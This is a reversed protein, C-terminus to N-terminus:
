GKWTAYQKLDVDAVKGGDYQFVKKVRTRHAAVPEFKSDNGPPNVAKQGLHLGQPMPIKEKDDIGSGFERNNARAVYVADSYAAVMTEKRQLQGCFAQAWSGAAIVPKRAKKSGHDSGKPNEALTCGVINVKLLQIKGQPCLKNVEAAVSKPSLFKDASKNSPVPMGHLGHMLIYVGCTAAGKLFTVVDHSSARPKGDLYHVVVAAHKGLQGAGHGAVDHGVGNAIDAWGTEVAAKRKDMFKVALAYGDRHDAQQIVDLQGTASLVMVILREVEM